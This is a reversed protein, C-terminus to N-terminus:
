GVELASAAEEFQTANCVLQIQDSRLEVPLFNSPGNNNELEDLPSSGPPLSDVYKVFNPPWEERPFDLKLAFYHACKLDNHNFLTKMLEYHLVPYELVQDMVMERWSNEAMDKDQYRKGLLYRMASRNRSLQLNPCTDPPLNYKKLYRTMLKAMKKWLVRDVKKIIQIDHRRPFYLSGYTM